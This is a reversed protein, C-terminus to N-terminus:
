YFKKLFQESVQLYKAIEKRSKDKNEIIYRNIFNDLRTIKPIYFYMGSLERMMKKVLEMGCYDAILKLDETLDEYKIEDFKDNQM